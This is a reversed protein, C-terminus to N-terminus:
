GDPGSAALPLVQGQEATQSLQPEQATHTSDWALTLVLNSVLGEVDQQPVILLQVTGDNAPLLQIDVRQQATTCLPLLCAVAASRIHHMRIPNISTNNM